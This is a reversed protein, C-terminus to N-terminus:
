SRRRFRSRRAPAIWDFHWRTRVHRGCARGAGQGPGRRAGGRFQRLAGHDLAPVGAGRSLILGSRAGSAVSEILVLTTLIWGGEVLFMVPNRAMNRPDLMVFSRITAMKVLAPEFLRLRRTHRRNLKLAESDISPPAALQTPTLLRCQCHTGHRFLLAFQIGLKVNFEGRLPVRITGVCPEFGTM